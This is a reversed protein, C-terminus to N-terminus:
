DNENELNGVAELKNKATKLMTRGTRIDYAKKRCYDSCYLANAYIWTEIKKGCNRCYWNNM